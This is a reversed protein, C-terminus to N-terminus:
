LCVILFKIVKHPNDSESVFEKFHVLTLKDCGDLLGNLWEAASVDDLSGQKAGPESSSSMAITRHQSGRTAFDSRVSISDGM